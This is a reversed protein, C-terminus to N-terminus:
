VRIDVVAALRIDRMYRRVLLALRKRMLRAAITKRTPLSELNKGGDRDCVMLVMIGERMKLPKTFTSLPANEVITKIEPSLDNLPFKGLKPNRTSGVNKAIQDFKTCSTVTGQLGNALKVKERIEAATATSIIPIFIQRLTVTIPTTGVGALKRVNRLILIRYGSVTRIPKTTMGPAMNALNRRVLKNLEAEHVWGLNGGRPATASQSFQRAMASFNAGKRLQDIIRRADEKVKVEETPHDISLLIEGLRYETTGRRSKIKELAEDIEDEGISVRPRLRRSVLKGWAVAVRLQSELTELPIKREKLMRNLTNKPIRNRREIASKARRIDRQTVSINHRRAEQLRLKEDILSRLVQTRLRKRVDPKDPLRTSFIVLKLRTELDYATILEDNVIAAIRQLPQSNGRDFDGLIFTLISAIFFLHFSKAIKM